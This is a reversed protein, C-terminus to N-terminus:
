GTIAADIYLKEAEGYAIKVTNYLILMLINYIM